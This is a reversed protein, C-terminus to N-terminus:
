FTYAFSMGAATPTAYPVVSLGGGNPKGTIIKKKGKAVFGDILNWVYIGAAVGISINRGTEWNDAKNKYEKAFRPQEAIKSHYSSRQNECLIISAISLAQAGIIVGAKGKSGKYLQAMGPVLPRAGVKYDNTFTVSEYPLTPNKATQVLLYVTYGGTTHHAYEEIIRAKVILEHDSEVNVNGNRITVNAESGTALSRRAIVEKAAKGRAEAMDYGFASVVELYSNGLEKFYGKTWFPKDSESSYSQGVATLPFLAVTMIILLFKKM